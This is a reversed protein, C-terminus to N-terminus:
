GPNIQTFHPPPPYSLWAQGLHETPVTGSPVHLFLHGESPFPTFLPEDTVGSMRGDQSPLGGKPNFKRENEVLVFVDGLPWYKELKDDQCASTSFM